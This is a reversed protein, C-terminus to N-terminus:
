FIFLLISIIGLLIIKTILQSKETPFLKDFFNITGKTLLPLGRALNVCIDFVLWFYISFWLSILLNTNTYILIGIMVHVIYKYKHWSGSYLEPNKIRYGDSLGWFLPISLLAIIFLISNITIM